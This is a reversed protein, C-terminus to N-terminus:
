ALLDRLRRVGARIEQVDTGGYGLVLGPRAARSLYCASLPMVWLQARAARASLERDDIGPELTAVLHMGARDGVPRLAGEFEEHIAHVLAGHRERYLLRMRRLHRAFHGDGIFETLVTQYLTPPFIDMAGRITVFRQVLDPPMVIYGLRLAPFLVKSFTGIHVVRSDRDLGQLAAIPQSDYRFESDYDDEIIWAGSAQAWDLLQLRRSASMTAGLPYQHSPTVYAARARPWRRLAAAVDLGQADVPVPALCAGVMALADRAGSYGPDEVWAQSGPDLLVRATVELAQQSGSVVMIEGAECRVGRSTRLYAAVAERFGREGLADGYRMLSARSARCHRAVLASWTELPFHEVATQSVRFAGWGGLWPTPERRLLPAPGRALTRRGPRRAAPSSATAGFDGPLSRAVFSGAGVRSEIYGEALLQEFATLVPIRSIALESALSRTSPLRQSARLRRALIAERYGEYLQRYLPKASARDIAIAPVLGSPARKM